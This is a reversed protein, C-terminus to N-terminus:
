NKLLIIKYIKLEDTIIVIIDSMSIITYRMIHMQFFSIEDFIVPRSLILRREEGFELFTFRLGDDSRWTGLFDISYSCCTNVSRSSSRTCYQLPLKSRRSRVIVASLKNLVHWAKKVLQSM